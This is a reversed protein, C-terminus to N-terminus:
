DAWIYAGSHIHECGTVRIFTREGGGGLEIEGGCTLENGGRELGM